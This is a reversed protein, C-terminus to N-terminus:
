RDKRFEDFNYDEGDHINGAIEVDRLDLDNLQYNCIGNSTWWAGDEFKVEIYLNGNVTLLDVVDGEYIEKKNKDKYGTFQGITEKRVERNSITGKEMIYFRGQPHIWLSGYIFGVDSLNGNFQKEGRFKYERM